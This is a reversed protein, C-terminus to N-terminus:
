ELRFRSTRDLRDFSVVTKITEESDALAEDIEDPGYIGTVLADLASEPTDRLWEAAARFHSRRSNVVGLIAKNTVVLETHFAGGDIDFTSSSGPIGQLTVVGNPALADVAEVAHAPHGTTEFAFDVPEHVAPFEDLSLERSDVYTGGVGEIIDITPDPRDRRGLCYTREFEDGTELRTLALLGLNGNGLVFASSPRWEFGSRAAAAQNLAKEVLSTPEVFFGYAARSEPVSVLYESRATFFEAMYGHAGTIGCEHLSEPPAMDLEGNAAFRSEDDVPRRVLPAVVDGKTLDTGNPEEVVGVAEHGIVLHDEGDPVDGGIEGAAIRRDSGDIGVAVTRILAEGKEPTPRPKEIVRLEPGDPFLAVARM